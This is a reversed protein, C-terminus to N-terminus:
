SQLRKRVKRWCWWRAFRWCASLQPSWCGNISLATCSTGIGGLITFAATLSMFLIGIFRLLKALGREPKM